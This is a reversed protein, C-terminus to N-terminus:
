KGDLAARLDEAECQLRKAEAPDSCAKAEGELRDVEDLVQSRRRELPDLGGREARVESFKRPSEAASIFPRDRMIMTEPRYPYLPLVLASM